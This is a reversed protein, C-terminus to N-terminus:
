ADRECLRLADIAAVLDERVTADEEIVLRESLADVDCAAGIREMAWAAHARVAASEHDLFSRVLDRDTPDGRNGLVTLSNRLLGAKGARSISFRKFHRNFGEGLRRIVEHPTLDQLEPAIPLVPSTEPPPGFPCATLCDDCGFIRGGQAARFERPVPGRHEITWYSLCRRADLVYPEVFADTPCATLCRTCTGCRDKAPADAAIPQDLLLVGLMTWPGREESLLMTNKGIWGLGAAAAAARELLPKTDVCVLGRTARTHAQAEHLLVELRDTMRRHYDERIAYAAVSPNAAPPYSAAVVMMTRADPLLSAPETRKYPDRALYTMAGYQEADLFRRLRPASAELAAPDAFGAASFGLERARALLLDRLSDRNM